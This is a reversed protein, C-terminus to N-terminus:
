IQPIKLAEAQASGKKEGKGQFLGKIRPGTQGVLAAHCVSRVDVDDAAPGAPNIAASVSAFACIATV